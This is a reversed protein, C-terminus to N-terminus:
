FSGFYSEFVFGGVFLTAFGAALVFYCVFCYKLHKRRLGKHWVSRRAIPWRLCLEDDGPRRYPLVVAAHARFRARLKIACALYLFFPVLVIPLALLDLFPDRDSAAVLSIAIM